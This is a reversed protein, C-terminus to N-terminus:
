YKKYKERWCKKCKYKVKLVRNGFCDFYYRSETKIFDHDCATKINRRNM